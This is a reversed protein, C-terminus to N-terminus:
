PAQFDGCGCPTCTIPILFTQYQRMHLISLAIKGDPSFCSECSFAPAADGLLPSRRKCFPLVFTEGSLPQLVPAAQQRDPSGTHSPSASVEPSGTLTPRRFLRRWRSFMASPSGPGAEPVPPASQNRSRPKPSVKPGVKPGPKESQDPPPTEPSVKPTQPGASERLLTGRASNRRASSGQAFKRSRSGPGAEGVSKQPGGPVPSGPGAEPVPKQPFSLRRSSAEPYVESSPKPLPNRHLFFPTGDPVPFSRVM